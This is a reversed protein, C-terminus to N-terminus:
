LRWSSRHRCHISRHIDPPPRDDTAAAAMASRAWGKVMATYVIITTVGAFLRSSYSERDNTIEATFIQLIGASEIM